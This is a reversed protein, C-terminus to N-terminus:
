NMLEYYKECKFGIRPVFESFSNLSKYIEKRNTYRALDRQWEPVQYNKMGIPRYPQAFPLIRKYTKWHEIRQLSEDFDSTIICYLFFEGNYGAARILQIANECEDVQMHTDCGFRIRKIWKVRALLDAIEKTVKRADLAQNFDVKWGNAAIKEIEGLGYESALVNNDMLIASTRGKTFIYEAKEYPKIEGEKLPVCCWKCHNPCGRTLFGYALNDPIDGYISYDPTVHEIRDDLKTKMDYGTGGKVVNDANICDVWDETFSFIKSMYVTDYRQWPNYWEVADGNGKHWASIKMLALNPFRNRSRCDVDILGIKMVKITPTGEM